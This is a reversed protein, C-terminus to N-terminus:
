SLRRDAAFATSVVCTKRGNDDDWCGAPRVSLEWFLIPVLLFFSM